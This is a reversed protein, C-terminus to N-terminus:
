RERVGRAGRPSAKTLIAAPATTPTWAKSVTRSLVGSNEANESTTSGYLMKPSSLSGPKPKCAPFAAVTKSTKIATGNATLLPGNWLRAGSVSVVSAWTAKWKRESLM